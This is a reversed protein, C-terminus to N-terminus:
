AALLHASQQQCPTCAAMLHVSWSPAVACHRLQPAVMTLQQSPAGSSHLCLSAGQACVQRLQDIRHKDAEAAASLTRQQADVDLRHLREREKELSSKCEEERRASSHLALQNVSISGLQLLLAWCM